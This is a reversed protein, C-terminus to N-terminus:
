LDLGLLLQGGGDQPFVAVRVPADPLDWSDTLWTSLGLGIMAGVSGALLVDTSEAKDGRILVDGGIGFLLGVTGGLDILLARGRSMPYRTALLAGGVLGIDSAILSAALLTKPEIDEDAATALMGTLVGAWLGGSGALSVDGSSFHFNRWALEGVGLGIVQALMASGAVVKGEETELAGNIALANWAGWEAGANLAAAHGSTIGDSTFFLSGGLGAGAGLMLLAVGVRADDCEILACMEAALVIGHLTQGTVLEARALGTPDEDRLIEGLSREVGISPTPPRAAPAAPESPPAPLMPVEVEKAQGPESPAIAELLPAALKAALHDPHDRVLAELMARARAPDGKALELTAAQYTTWAEDIRPDPEQAIATGSSLLASALLLSLTVYRMAVLIHM